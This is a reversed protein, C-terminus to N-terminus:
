RVPAAFALTGSFKLTRGVRIIIRVLGGGRAQIEEILGSLESRAFWYPTIPLGRADTRYVYAVSRYDDQGLVDLFRDWCRSDDIM